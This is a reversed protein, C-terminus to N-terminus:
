RVPRYYGSFSVLRRRVLLFVNSLHLWLICLFGLMCLTFMCCFVSFFILKGYYEFRSLHGPLAQFMKKKINHKKRINEHLIDTFHLFSCNKLSQQPPLVLLGRYGHLLYQSSSISCLVLPHPDICQSLVIICFSPVSLASYSFQVIFFHFHEVLSFQLRSGQQFM